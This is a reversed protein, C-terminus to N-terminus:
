GMRRAVIRAEHRGQATWGEFSSVIHLGALLAEGEGPALLFRRSPRPHRELNAVTPQAFVVLGQPALWQPLEGLTTRRLYHHIVILDWPGAPPSGRDLDAVVCTPALGRRAAEERALAIGADSIDLLTVDWGHEALWLAHRGTGGALDLAKGPAPAHTTVAEVVFPEPPAIAPGEGYRRNWEQHEAESMPMVSCVRRLPAVGQPGARRAPSSWVALPM